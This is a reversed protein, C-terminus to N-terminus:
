LQTTGEVGRAMREKTRNLLVFQAGELHTLALQNADCAYPGRQFGKFRDILIEILAEHTIGNVGAEAIPGNQFIIDVRQIHGADEPQPWPWSIHYAHNAGGAGPEDLVTITLRDNAPNVKHGTLERMTEEGCFELAYRAFIVPCNPAHNGQAVDCLDCLEESTGDDSCVQALVEELLRISDNRIQIVRAKSVTNM